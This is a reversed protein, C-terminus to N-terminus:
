AHKVASDVKEDVTTEEVGVHHKQVLTWGLFGAVITIVFGATTLTISDGVAPNPENWKERQIFYSIAYLVLATVNAILHILGTKKASSASPINLWDIFGPIAAVLAMIIGALNAIYGAKYWFIDNNSNYSMYCALAATYFAVPFAVLMPHVPHGLVKVKSYM